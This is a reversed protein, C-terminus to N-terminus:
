TIRLSVLTKVRAIELLIDLLICLKFKHTARVAITYFDTLLMSVSSGAYPREKIIKLKLLQWCNKILDIPCNILQM